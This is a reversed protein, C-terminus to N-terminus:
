DMASLTSNLEESPLQALVSLVEGVPNDPTHTGSKKAQDQDIIAQGLTVLALQADEDSGFFSHVFDHIIRDATTIIPTESVTGALSDLYNLNDKDESLLARVYRSAINTEDFM